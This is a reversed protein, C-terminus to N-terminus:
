EFYESNVEKQYMKEVPLNDIRKIYAVNSIYIRHTDVTEIIRGNILEESDRCEIYKSEFDIATKWNEYSSQKAEEITQKAHNLKATLILIVAVLPSVIILMGTIDFM